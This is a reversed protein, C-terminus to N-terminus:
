FSRRTVLTGPGFILANRLGAEVANGLCRGGDSMCMRPHMAEYGLMGGVFSLSAAVALGCTVGATAPCLMLAGVGAGINVTTQVILDRNRSVGRAISRCSGNKNKGTWCRTGELDFNNLPDGSVYDYANASGGEIPDKQLFRGLRSDYLRNGMRVTTGKSTGSGYQDETYRQQSGLWGLHNAPIGQSGPNGFEDAYNWTSGGAMDIENMIDGHTNASFYTAEGDTDTQLLGGPGNVMTTVSTKSVDKVVVDDIFVTHEASSHSHAIQLVGATSVANDTATVSWGQPEPAGTGAAWAKASITTGQVRLRLRNAVTGSTFPFSGLQTVTSGVFKQLKISTSDSAIDLRYANPMQSAGSAGSAKLFIRLNSGATNENFQYTLSVESDSVATMQATARASSGNVYLSAQNNQIDVRKAVNPPLDNSTSVWKAGLAANNAGTFNEVLLMPTPWTGNAPRSYAPSDGPGDFGYITDSLVTYPSPSMKVQRQIVRGSPANTTVTATSPDQVLTAHERGDYSYSQGPVGTGSTSLLNGRADYNFTTYGGPTKTARDAEDSLYSNDCTAQVTTTATACRNTNADYAYSRKIVGSNWDWVTALRAAGDYGYQVEEFQNENVLLRGAQSHSYSDTQYAVQGQPTTPGYTGIAGVHGYNGYSIGTNVANPRAVSTPNGGDDYSFSTTRAIGSAYDSLTAVRNVSDFTQRTLVSNAQGPFQRDTGTLRGARDYLCTTITGWEDTYKYLRGNLDIESVTTRNETGAATASDTYTTTTLVGNYVTTSTRGARDKAWRVRSRADYHTCNPSDGANTSSNSMVRGMRDYTYTDVIYDDPGAPEPHLRRALQGGQIITQLATAPPENAVPASVCPDITGENSQAGYYQVTTTYAAGKPLQTATLRGYGYSTGPAEYTMTTRLNLGAPDAVSASALGREPNAYETNTRKGDADKTSTVLDYRPTLRAQPVIQASSVDPGTWWLELHAAGTNEKYDVRIRHWGVYTPAWPTYYPGLSCCGSTWQDIVLKDDIYLRAGDDANLNFGYYSSTSGIYIAGTYQATWYDTDGGLSAPAGTGWDHGLNGTSDLGTEHSFPAGTFYPNKWYAAALGRIAPANTASGDPFTPAGDYAKMQRGVTCTQTVPQDGNFCAPRDPGWIDTVRKLPDYWTATRVGGNNAGGPVQTWRIRDDPWWEMSTLKGAGDRDSIVQGLTNITVRRTYGTAPSTGAVLVDTSLSPLNTDPVTYAYTTSPRAPDSALSLPSDVQSVRGGGDYSIITRLLDSSTRQGAAVADNALPSTIKTLQGSGNYSFDTRENGPNIIATLKGSTYLLDTTGWQGLDDSYQIQCLLTAPAAGTPCNSGTGNAYVLTLGKPSLRDNINTLRGTGADWVYSPDSRKDFVQGGDAAGDNLDSGNTASRLQGADDFAYTLGDPGLVNYGTITGSSNRTTTVVAQDDDLALRADCRRESLRHTAGTPEILVLYNGETVLQQYMLSGQADVSMGWGFPLPTQPVYPSQKSNYTFSLGLPGGVTQLQASAVSVLLNGTALNVKVGGASDFPNAVQQGLRLNVTFKAVSSWVTGSVDKTGIKWSYTVGDRLYGGPVTTDPTTPIWPSTWLTNVTPDDTASILFQFSLGVTPAGAGILTPTVTVVAGNNDPKYPQVAVPLAFAPLAAAMETLLIVAVVVALQWLQWGGRRVLRGSM